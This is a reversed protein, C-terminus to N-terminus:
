AKKGIAEIKDKLSQLRTRDESVLRLKDYKGQAERRNGLLIAAEVSLELYRASKSDLETSSQAYQWAKEANKRDLYFEALDAHRNALRPRVELAKLRMAEAKIWDEESEAIEALGAYVVDDAKKMKEMFEFTEKAQPYLKQKLYITALGKYADWNQRDLALVELFRKEAEAWRLDRAQSRADDLLVKLREKQSPAINAFPAKAQKYYRELRILRIYLAHFITKGYTMLRKSLLMLPGIKDSKIRQLRNLMLQDRKRKDLEEKISEPNILRIKKWHRLIVVLITLLALAAVILAVVYLM